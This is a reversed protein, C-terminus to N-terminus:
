DDMTVRLDVNYLDTNEEVWQKWDEIREPSFHKRWEGVAGKRIFSGNSTENAYNSTMNVSSNKRFNDIHLYDELKDVQEDTLTKGLLDATERIVSGLDAKMDEFWVFHLNPLHRRSWGSNLHYWYNGMPNRGKRFLEAYQDFTGLFGHNPVLREHHFFSVCCDMPNRAVFVIKAGAEMVREIPLMDVPLHTKIVRPSPLAKVLNLHEREKWAKPGLLGDMELYPSRRTLPEKVDLDWHLIQWVMEQSWTTGCKPYTVVFVDDPRIELDYYEEALNVFSSPMLIGGPFSEVLDLMPSKPSVCWPGEATYIKKREAKEEPSIPRWEFPYAAKRGKSEEEEEETVKPVKPVESRRAKSGGGGCNEEESPSPDIICKQGVRPRFLDDPTSKEFAAAMAEMEDISISHQFETPNPAM